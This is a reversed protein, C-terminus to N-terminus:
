KFSTVYYSKSLKKKGPDRPLHITGVASKHEAGNIILPNFDTAPFGIRQPSSLDDKLANKLV